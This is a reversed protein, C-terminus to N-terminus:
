GGASTAAQGRGGSTASEEFNPRELAAAAVVDPHAVDLELTRLSRGDDSELQSEILIARDKLDSLLDTVQDESFGMKHHPSLAHSRIFGFTM